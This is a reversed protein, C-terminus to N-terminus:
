QTRNRAHLGLLLRQHLREPAHQPGKPPVVRADAVALHLCLRWHFLPPHFFCPFPPLSLFFCLPSIHLCDSAFECECVWVCVRM